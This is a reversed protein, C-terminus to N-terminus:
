IYGLILDYENDNIISGDYKDKHDKLIRKVM